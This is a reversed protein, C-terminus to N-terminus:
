RAIVEMGAECYIEFAEQEDRLAMIRAFQRACANVQEARARIADAAEYSTMGGGTSCNRQRDLVAQAAWKGHRLLVPAVFRELGRVEDSSESLALIAEEETMQIDNNNVCEAKQKLMERTTVARCRQKMPSDFLHEVAKVVQPRSSAFEVAAAVAKKKNSKSEEKGTYLTADTGQDVESADERVASSSGNSTPVPVRGDEDVDFRVVKKASLLLQQEQSSTCSSRSSVTCNDSSDSKRRSRRDKKKQSTTEEESVSGGGGAAARISNMVSAGLRHRRSSGAPFSSSLIAMMTPQHHYEYIISNHLAPLAKLSFLRKTVFLFASSGNFSVLLFATARVRAWLSSAV